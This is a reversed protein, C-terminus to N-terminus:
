HGTNFEAWITKGNRAGEIGWNDSTATVIRLGTQSDSLDAVAPVISSGDSIELRILDARLELRVTYPTHAHRIVNSALESATLVIDDLQTSGKLAEAVFQRVARASLPDPQFDRQHFMSPPLPHGPRRPGMILRSLSM